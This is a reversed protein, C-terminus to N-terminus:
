ATQYKKTFHIERILHQQAIGKREYKTMPRWVQAPAYGSGGETFFTNEFGKVARCAALIWAAYDEWDTVAYLYGGTKLKKYILNLFSENLLRRKHHRTKPWPDPFFVHFGDVSSDPLMCSVVEAADHRIVRINPISRDHIKRLIAGVGAPFVEIGIYLTRPNSVALSVAAEGTGFGIEVVVRDLAAGPPALSTFDIHENRFPLGYISYLDELARKRGENLRGGRLVYSKINRHEKV